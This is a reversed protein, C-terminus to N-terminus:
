GVDIHVGTDVHPILPTDVHPTTVDVHPIAPTDVHPTKADGHPILSRDIHLSDSHPLDRDVHVWSGKDIHGGGIDLHPTDTHPSSPTDIHVGGTDVHLASPTDVHKAGIDGHPADPTDIHPVAWFDVHIGSFLNGLVDAIADYGYGLKNLVDSIADASLNFVDKLAAGVEHAAFGAGDMIAAAADSTLEYADKLVSGISEFGEMLLEKAMEAWKAPDTLLSDFIDSANDKIYNIIIKPIEALSSPSEKLSIDPLAFSLGMFNFSMGHIKLEFANLGIEVSVAVSIGAEFHLSGLNIGHFKFPGVKIDVELEFDAGACFRKLNDLTCYLDLQGIHEIDYSIIFSAGNRSIDVNVSQKFIDFLSIQWNAHFIQSGSSDIQVVPGGPKVVVLEKTGGSTNQDNQSRNDVPKGTEADVIRMIGKGDGEVQLVGFLDLPDMEATGKIGSSPFISFDGHANFGFIDINGGFAFGPQAFTGDPLLVPQEAWYFSVDTAKIVDILEVIAPAPNDTFLTYVQGFNIEDMYFSLYVPNPVDGVIQLVIGFSDDSTQLQGIRFKGMVGLKLSPPRFFIGMAIGLNYMHLGRIGPPPPLPKDNSDVMVAAQIESAAILLSASADIDAGFLKFGFSGYLGIAIEGAIVILIGANALKFLKHDKTPVYLDGDLVIFLRIGDGFTVQLKMESGGVISQLNGMLINNRATTDFDLNATLSLGRPLQLKVNSALLEIKHSIGNIPIEPLEPIFYDKFEGSSLLVCAQNIDIFDAPKLAYGLIPLDSLKHFEGFDVGFVFGYKGTSDKEATFFANGFNKSFASLNFKSNLSDYTFVAKDLSLDLGNPIDVFNDIGILGVLDDLGISIGDDDTWCAYYTMAYSGIGFRLDFTASGVSLKGQLWTNFNIEGSGNGFQVQVYFSTDLDITTGAIKVEQAGNVDGKFSLIRNETNYTVVLNEADVEPLNSPLDAGIMGCLEVLFSSINIKVGEATSGSIIWGKGSETSMVSANFYVNAISFTGDIRGFYIGNERKAFFKLNNIELNVPGLPISWSSEGAQSIFSFDGTSPTITFTTDRFTIDPLEPQLYISGLAKGALDTISIEPICAKFIWPDTPLYKRASVDAETEGIKVKGDIEGEFGRKESDLPSIVNANVRINELTFIEKIIEWDKETAFEIHINSLLNNLSLDTVIDLGLNRLSMTGLDGLEEPLDFFSMGGVLEAIDNLNQFNIELIDTNLKLINDILPLDARLGIVISNFNLNATFTGSFGQSFASRESAPDVSWLIINANNINLWTVGPLPVNYERPINLTVIAQINGYEEFFQIVFEISIENNWESNGSVTLIKAEDSYKLTTDSLIVEKALPYGDYITKFASVCSSIQSLAIRGDVINQEIISKLSSIDM